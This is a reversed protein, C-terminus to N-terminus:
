MQIITARISPTAPRSPGIQAVNTLLRMTTDPSQWAIQIIDNASLALTYNLAMLLPENNANLTFNTNTDPYNVGNRIIWMDGTQVGGGTKNLQATFQLNYNATKSVQIQTATLLIIGVNIAANNFTVLNTTSGVPNTQTVTSYFYAQDFLAVPTVNLVGNLVTLNTGPKVIGFGTTTALPERYSMVCYEM